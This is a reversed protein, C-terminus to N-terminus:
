VEPTQKWILTFNLQHTQASFGVIQQTQSCSGHTSIHLYLRAGVKQVSGCQSFLDVFNCSVTSILASIKKNLSTMTLEPSTLIVVAQQFLFNVELAFVQRSEGFIALKGLHKVRSQFPAALSKRGLQLM